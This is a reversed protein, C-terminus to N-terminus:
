SARSNLSLVNLSCCLALSSPSPAAKAEDVETLRVRTSNESAGAPSCVLASKNPPCLVCTIQRPSCSIAQWGAISSGTNTQGPTKTCPDVVDTSQCRSLTSVQGFGM